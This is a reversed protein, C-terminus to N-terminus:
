IQRAPCSLDQGALCVAFILIYIWLLMKSIEDVSLYKSYKRVFRNILSTPSYEFTGKILSRAHQYNFELDNDRPLFWKAREYNLIAKGLQENKFYSNALNYYLEGSSFGEKLINEYVVISNDVIMGFGLTLGALSLMNLGIKLFYLCLCKMVLLKM